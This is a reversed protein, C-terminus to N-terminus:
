VAPCHWLETGANWNWSTTQWFFFDFYFDSSQLFLFELVLTSNASPVNNSFIFIPRKEKLATVPNSFDITRSNQLSLWLSDHSSDGGKYTEYYCVVICGNVVYSYYCEKLAKIKLNKVSTAKFQVNKGLAQRTHFQLQREYAVPLYAAHKKPRGLWM